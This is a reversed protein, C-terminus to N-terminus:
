CIGRGTMASAGDTGLGLIKDPDVGRKSMEQYIAASIAAGTGEDLKINTIYLTSPQMTSSNVTQCYLVLRHTVTRDTSEDCLVTVYPSDRLTSQTETEVVESLAQLFEHTAYDSSYSIGTSVSM